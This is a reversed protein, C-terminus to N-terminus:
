IPRVDNVFSCFFKAKERFARSLIHPSHYLREHQLFAIQTHRLKTARDRWITDDPTELIVPMDDFRSNDRNKHFNNKNKGSRKGSAEFGM